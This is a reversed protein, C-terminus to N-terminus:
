FWKNAFTHWGTAYDIAVPAVLPLSFAAILLGLLAGVAVDSPYHLGLVIRSLAILAVFPLLAISVAPAYVAFMSTFLVAHLTHGSPFSYQDLPAIQCQIQGHSVYPRPRVLRNKLYAYCQGGVLSTLGVHLM